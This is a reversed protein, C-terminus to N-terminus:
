HCGDFSLGGGVFAIIEVKDGEKLFTTKFDVRDIIYLNIEVAMREPNIGLEQLLLTVTTNQAVKRTAGNLVIELTM